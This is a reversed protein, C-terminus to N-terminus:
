DLRYKGPHLEQLEKIARGVRKRDLVESGEKAENLLYKTREEVPDKYESPLYSIVVVLAVLSSIGMTYIIAMAVSVFRDNNLFFVDDSSSRKQDDEEYKKSKQRLHYKSYFLKMKELSPAMGMPKSCSPCKVCDGAVDGYFFASSDCAPCNKKAFVIKEVSPIRFEKRCKPCTTRKGANVEQIKIKHLCHPCKIRLLIM